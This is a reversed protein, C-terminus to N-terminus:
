AMAAKVALAKQEDTADSAMIAQVIAIISPSATAAQAKAKAAAQPKPSAKPKAAGKPVFKKAGAEGYAAVLDQRRVGHFEALPQANAIDVEVTTEDVVRAPLLRKRVSAVLKGDLVYVPQVIEGANRGGMGIRRVTPRATTLTIKSM